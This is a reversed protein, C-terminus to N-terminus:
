ETMNPRVMFQVGHSSLLDFVEKVHGHNRTELVCYVEVSSVHVKAFAREHVIERISAGSLAVLRCFEALAGPRDSIMVTFRCLRGDAVLGREVVRCLVSPDINGGCLCLVVRKGRLEPLKGSLLAALSSAAAGEVVGKELEVLRLIALAIQDETVTIV